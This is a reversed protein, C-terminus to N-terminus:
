VSHIWKPRRAKAPRGLCNGLDDYVWERGSKDKCTQFSRPLSVEHGLQEEMFSEICSKEGRQERLRDILMLGAICFSNTSRNCYGFLFRNVADIDAFKEWDGADKVADMSSYYDKSQWKGGDYVKDPPFMQAIFGPSFRSMEHLIFDYVGFLAELDPKAYDDIASKMVGFLKVGVWVVKVAEEETLEDWQNHGQITDYLIRAYLAVYREREQRRKDQRIDKNGQILEM